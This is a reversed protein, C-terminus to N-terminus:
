PIMRHSTSLLITDVFYRELRMRSKWMKKKVILLDMELPKTNLNYESTYDLYEADEILELKMASVFAPHWQTKLEKSMKEESEQYVCIFLSVGCIGLGIRLIGYYKIFNNM